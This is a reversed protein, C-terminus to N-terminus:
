QTCYVSGSWRSQGRKSDDHGSGAILPTAVDVNRHAIRKVFKSKEHRKLYLTRILTPSKARTIM